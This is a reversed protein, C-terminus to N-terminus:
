IWDGGAVDNRLLGAERLRSSLHTLGKAAWVMEDVANRVAESSEFVEHRMQTM